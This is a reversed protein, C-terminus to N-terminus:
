LTLELAALAVCVFGIEFFLHAFRLHILSKFLLELTM